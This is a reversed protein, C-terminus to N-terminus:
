AWTIASEVPYALYVRHIIDHIQAHQRSIQGLYPRLGGRLLEPLDLYDLTSRVRGSIRLLESSNRGGAFGNIAELAGHLRKVSFHASHPFHDDLLLFEIVHDHRPDAGHTKCYAEFATFSKLLGVWELYNEHLSEAPTGPTFEEYYADLQDVILIGRELYRGAQIFQWGEGRSMTSDTVGQFMTSGQIVQSFFPYAGTEWVEDFRSRKVQLYLGNITEWMESSIMERIQRANERAAAICSVVSSPNGANFALTHTIGRADDEGAEPADARLAQLVRSWRESPAAPSQDLMLNLNVNIIRSTHEARELYRSMWYLSDAVRSLM